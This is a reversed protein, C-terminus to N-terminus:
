QLETWVRAGCALPNTPDYVVKVTGNHEFTRHYTPKGYKGRSVRIVPESTGHKNNADVRHRNINVYTTL